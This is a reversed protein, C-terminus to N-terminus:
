VVKTFYIHLRFYLEFHELKYGYFFPYLNRIVQNSCTVRQYGCGSCDFARGVSSFGTGGM